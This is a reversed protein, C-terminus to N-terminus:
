SRHAPVFRGSDDRTSRVVLGADAVWPEVEAWRRRREVLGSLLEPWFPAEGDSAVAVGFAERSRGGIWGVLIPV